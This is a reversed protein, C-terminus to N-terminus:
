NSPAGQLCEARKSAPSLAATEHLQQKVNSSVLQKFVTEEMKAGDFIASSTEM